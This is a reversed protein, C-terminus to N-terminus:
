LPLLSALLDDLFLRGKATPAVRDGDHRLFGEDVKQAVAGAVWSFPLGTHREYQATEFGANLRLANMMFEFAVDDVSLRSRGGVRGTHGASQMYDRPHKLKWYREVSGQRADTIKGHAGAGIGLYDGFVWYNLNHRCAHDSRAYASVEYQRYDAAALRAQGATYIEYVADDEPLPPPQAHFLTNPELTLQYYSIHTPKLAIATEIDAVAEARTQRPLGFMLDLNLNDFGAARAAAVAAFIEDRGHIRGLRVLAADSFSQVGLSLRNVGAARYAAFNEQEATGPNAELTIEAHPSVKVRARVGALLREIAAGSFLSPTGGGIFITMVRRGWVAPLDQELDALLADVYRAEDITENVAHSNFDCYPCKRVCWPVHIYLSLPPLTTFSFDM